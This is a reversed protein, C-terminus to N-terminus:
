TEKKKFLFIVSIEKEFFFYVETCMRELVSTDNKYFMTTQFCLVNKNAFVFCFSVVWLGGLSIGRPQRGVTKKLASPECNRPKSKHTYSGFVRARERKWEQKKERM